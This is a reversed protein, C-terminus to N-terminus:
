STPVAFPKSADDGEVFLTVTSGLGLGTTSTVTNGSITVPFGYADIGGLVKSNPADFTASPADPTDNDYVLQIFGHEGLVGDPSVPAYVGPAYVNSKGNYGRTTLKGTEAAGDYIVGVYKGDESRVMLHVEGSLWYGNLSYIRWQNTSGTVLEFGLPTGRLDTASVLTGQLTVTGETAKPDVITGTFEYVGGDGPLAQQVGVITVTDSVVATPAEIVLAVPPVIPAAAEIPQAQNQPRSGWLAGLLAFIALAIAIGIM